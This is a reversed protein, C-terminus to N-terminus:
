FRSTKMDCMRETERKKEMEAVYIAASEDGVLDVGHYFYLHICIKFADETSFVWM